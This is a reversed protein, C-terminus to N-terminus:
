IAADAVAAPAPRFNLARAWRRPDHPQDIRQILEEFSTQAAIFANNAYHYGYYALADDRTPRAANGDRLADAFAAPDAYAQVWPATAHDTIRLIPKGLLAAIMISKSEAVALGDAHRILTETVAGRYRESAVSAVRVRDPDMQAIRAIAPTQRGERLDIPHLSVALLFDPALAAAIREVFADPSEQLGHLRGFFNDSGQYQLPLAVFRRDHPLGFEALAQARDQDAAGGIDGRWCPATADLLWTREAASLSPMMGFAFFDPWTVQLRGGIPGPGFISPALEAEMLYAVRGPFRKPTETDASRCLTYDPDIQEVFAVLADPDDPRMRYSPHDDGGIVHWHVGSLDACRQLEAEGIGTGSWLPPVIVHVDCARAASRILHHISDNFWNPTIVPLYFLVRM